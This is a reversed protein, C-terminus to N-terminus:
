EWSDDDDDDGHSEVNVYLKPAVARVNVYLKTAVAAVAPPRPESFNEGRWLWYIVDTGYVYDTEGV